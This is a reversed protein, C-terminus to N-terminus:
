IPPQDFAALLGKIRVWVLEEPGTVSFCCSHFPALDFSVFFLITFCPLPLRLKTLEM